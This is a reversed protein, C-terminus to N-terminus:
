ALCTPTVYLVAKAEDLRGQRVQAQALLGPLPTLQAGPADRLPTLWAEAAHPNGLCLEYEAAALIRPLQSLHSLRSLHVPHSSDGVVEQQSLL